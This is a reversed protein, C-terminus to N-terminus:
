TLTLLKKAKQPAKVIRAGASKRAMAIVEDVEDKREVNYALVHVKKLLKTM